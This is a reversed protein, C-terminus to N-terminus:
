QSSPPNAELLVGSVAGVLLGMLMCLVPRGVFLAAIGRVLAGPIALALSIAFIRWRRPPNRFRNRLMTFRKM